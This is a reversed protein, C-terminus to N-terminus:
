RGSGNAKAVAEILHLEDPSFTWSGGNPIFGLVKEAYPRVLDNWRPDNRSIVVGEKKLGEKRRRFARKLTLTNPTSELTIGSEQTRAADGWGPSRLGGGM